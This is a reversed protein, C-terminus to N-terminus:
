HVVMIKIIRRETKDQSKAEVQCLYVGSAVDGVNWKVENATGTNGPGSFEDILDGAADFIRIRVQAPANLYYRINTEDGINPNPYNYVRGKPMLGHGLPQQQQVAELVVNNKANYNTMFWSELDPNFPQELQWIYLAGDNTIAALEMEADEDLQAIVPDTVMRGGTSLPFGPKIRGQKDLALIQGKKSSALVDSHNDGDVDFLLPAGRLTDNRGLNPFRPFDSITYGYRSYAYVGRGAVFLLDRQRNGDPDALIFPGSPAEEASFTVGSDGADDHFWQFQDQHDNYVFFQASTQIELAAYRTNSPWRAPDANENVAFDRVGEALRQRNVITGANNVTYLSDNNCAAYVTGNEVVLAAHLSAPLTVPSFLAQPQNDEDPSSLDFGYIRHDVGAFLAESQGNRDQDALAVSLHTRAPELRSLLKQDQGFLGNGQGDVAYLGGSSAAAFVLATSQGAVSATTLVSFGSDRGSFNLPFPEELGSRKYDFTMVSGRNDSFNEISINTVARNLNARTNPNTDDAFRNHYQEFGKLYSPRNKFWFDALTGLETQYGAQLLTYSQGIDQAGDAEEIDVARREPDANIRNDDGETAIIREDVHWILVGAGPLGWDYDPLSILVGSQGIEIQDSFHTKLVELYTPPEERNAYMENFLSDININSDGRFELLYYENENIPIRVMRHAGPPAEEGFRALSVNQVNNRLVEPHEWGLLQRSFAGPPSPALGNLNLLGVDMLGFRGVGSRQTTPSFLDYLGLYSGINSVFFGTLAIQIDQQNETEPLLIGEKIVTQGDNVAIGNFADDHYQQLYSETIFLSPIDQPTPDFGTDVDKGVGAHFITVLDYAGFPINDQNDAAGVADIFLQSIGANIAEDTTNPNYDGMTKDLKYAGTDSAPYVTGRVTLRNGSVNEYYSAAARIQDEFYLRNHPAPDIAHSDTTVTDTMFRGNGTTLPNNDAKFEVRIACIRLTDPVNSIQATLVTVFFLLIFGALHIFAPTKIDNNM